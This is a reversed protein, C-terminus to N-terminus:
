ESLDIFAEPPVYRRWPEIVDEMIGSLDVIPVCRRGQGTWARANGLEHHITGYRARPLTGAPDIYLTGAECRASSIRGLIVVEEASVGAEDLFVLALAGGPMQRCLNHLNDFGGVLVALVDQSVRPLTRSEETRKGTMLGGTSRSSAVM